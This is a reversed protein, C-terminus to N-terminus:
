ICPKQKSRRLETTLLLQFLDDKLRQQAARIHKCTTELDEPVNGSELHGAIRMQFHKCGCAGNGKYYLLDVLYEKRSDEESEVLYRFLGEHPKVQM